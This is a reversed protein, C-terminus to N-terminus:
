SSSFQFPPLIFCYGYFLSLSFSVSTLSINPITISQLGDIFTEFTFRKKSVFLGWVYWYTRVIETLITDRLKLLSFSRFPFRLTFWFCFLSANPLMTDSILIFINWRYRLTLFADFYVYMCVYVYMCADTSIAQRKTMWFSMFATHM